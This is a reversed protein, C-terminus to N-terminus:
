HAETGSSSSVEEIPKRSLHELFESPDTAATTTKAGGVVFGRSGGSHLSRAASRRIAFWLIGLLVLAVITSRVIERGANNEPEAAPPATPQVQVTKAVLLPALRITDQAKYALRKFFFGTLQVPDSIKEATNELGRLEGPPDLVYAIVIPPNSGSGMEIWLKYYGSVGYSNKTAELHQIGRLRGAIDVLHGRYARPQNYLQVHTLEGESAKRLEDATAGSLVDFLHFWADNEKSLLVTDDRVVSLYDGRVGPFLQDKAAGDEQTASIDRPSRFVGVAEGPALRTDLAAAGSSGDDQAQAPDQNAFLGRWLAPNAGQSALVLLTISLLVLGLVPWQRRRGAACSARAKSRFDLV